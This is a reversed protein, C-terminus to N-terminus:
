RSPQEMLFAKVRSRHRWGLSILGGFIFAAISMLGRKPGSKEVPLNGPDLINLVPTDNKADLLSQEQTMALTTVMQRRLTLESELRSGMLRITSDGSTSYNRHADSFVQLAREAALADQQADALRQATFRAKAAGQEQATKQIFAELEALGAQLVQRSLEPSHTTVRVTVLESKIDRDVSLHKKQFREVAKDVNGEDLYDFLTGHKPRAKLFFLPRLGYDYTRNVLAESIRRSNMVDVYSASDDGQAGAGVGLAAAATMLNSLLGGSGITKPLIQAESTYDNPLFLSVLAVAAAALLAHRLTIRIGEPIRMLSDKFRAM